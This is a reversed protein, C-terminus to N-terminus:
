ALEKMPSNSIRLVNAVGSAYKQWREQHKQLQSRGAKTLTYVKRPKAESGTWEATVFGDAELQHLTPYLQGDGVALAGESLTRIRKAIDYGHLAEAELVGLILSETGPKDM